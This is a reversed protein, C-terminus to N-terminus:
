STENDRIMRPHDKLLEPYQAKKKKRQWRKERKAEEDAIQYIHPRFEKLTFEQYEPKSQHLEMPTMTKHLGARVAEKLLRYADSKHWPIKYDPDAARFGDVISRDHGYSAVDEAMRERDRAIGERMTKLNTRFNNKGNKPNQDTWEKHAPHMLWVQLPTMNPTIQNSLIGQRVIKRSESKDWSIKKKKAGEAQNAGDDAM